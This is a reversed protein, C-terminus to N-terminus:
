KIMGFVFIATANASITPENCVYDNRDDRYYSSDTQFNVYRDNELYKIKLDGYVSKMVPGGSLAGPLKGSNFFAVQHHFHKVYNEGKDYIFSIGWPNRGLIYDRNITAMKDFSNDKTLREYLINILSAGLLNMNSGWYLDVCEGFDKKKSHEAFKELSKKLLETFDPNFRAIKYDALAAVNGWGWWAEPGADRGYNEADTLYKEDKTLLYMEIAALALKGSYHKDRYFGTGTTDIDDVTNKLSYFTEATEKLKISFEPFNITEKWIRSGLALAAVYIGILNKGIGLFGPRDFQLPDKEPMRWGVSQDKEDQVQTILEKNHYNARLLWDLGIKAEELIDPVNNRNNDFSFRQPAFDYAFLLMYTSFATTNVFKTYDGADHWGGTVDFKEKRRGNKDVLETVDAIHCVNHLEPNTYGCRQVKFFELMDSAFSSYVNKGVSFVPSTIGEIQLYYKGSEKVDSFEIEYVFNFDAYKRLKKSIFDSYVEVDGIKDVVFFRKGQLDINSLVVASKYDDTNFGQQNVRIFIQEGSKEGANSCATVMLLITLIKLM